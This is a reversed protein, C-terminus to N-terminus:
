AQLKELNLGCTSLLGRRGTLHVAPLRDRNVPRQRDAIARVPQAPAGKVAGDRLQGDVVGREGLVVHSGCARGILNSRLMGM